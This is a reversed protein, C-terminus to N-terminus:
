RGFNDHDQEITKLKPRGYDEGEYDNLLYKKRREEQSGDRPTLHSSQDQVIAIGYADALDNDSDVQVEDYDKLENILDLFVIKHGHDLVVSQMASIMLPRSYKNLSVGYEHKQETNVSELKSPRRSLYKACSNNKFHDIIMPKAVDVLVSGILNYYISVKLCMEYFEEKRKPRCRVVCVPKMTPLSSLNHSRTIVCMAGLSKTTKSQDQDYSDIGASYLNALERPHGDDSILVCDEDRDTNKAPVAIVKLPILRENKDNKAYELKYKSYQPPKSQISFGADNLVEISFKNSSAKKFVEEITLPNDQCYEIYGEIDGSDLYLQRQKLIHDKAAEIDECGYVQYDQFEKKLNPIEQALRGHEDTAGGYFPFYFRTGPVFLVEMNFEKLNHYMYEFDDGNSSRNGGTAWTFFNGKQVSGYMFCAKTANYFQRLKKFEVGEEAYVENLYLGKFLNANQFMSRPYITNFTGDETKGNLDIIDYCAVRDESGKHMIKFEPVIISNHKEWKSMYDDVYTKLGGAVGARYGPIFRWGYDTGMTIFCESLGGRRKKPVMGNKANAKCYDIFYAIDLHLDCIDATRPGLQGDFIKFNAFYYYRGPINIGGTQYGNLIYYVQEEWYKEWDPTGIVNKNRRSDAYAPIGYKAVPNPCFNKGKIIQGKSVYM